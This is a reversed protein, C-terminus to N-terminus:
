LGDDLRKSGFGALFREFCARIWFDPCDIGLRRSRRASEYGQCSSEFVTSWGIRIGLDWSEGLVTDVPAVGELFRLFTLVRSAFTSEPFCGTFFFIPSFLGQDAMQVPPEM